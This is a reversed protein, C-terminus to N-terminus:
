QVHLVSLIGDVMLHLNGLDYPCRSIPTAVLQLHPYGWDDDTKIYLIKLYPPKRLWPAVGLKVMWKYIPNEMFSVMWSQYTHYMIVVLTVIAINYPKCVMSSWWSDSIQKLSFRFQFRKLPFELFWGEPWIKPTYERFNLRFNRGQLNNVPWLEATNRCRCWFRKGESKGWSRTEAGHGLDM